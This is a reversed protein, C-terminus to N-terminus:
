EETVFDKVKGMYYEKGTKDILRYEVNENVIVVYNKEFYGIINIKLLVEMQALIKM